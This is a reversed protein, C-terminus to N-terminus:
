AADGRPPLGIVLKPKRPGRGGRTRGENITISQEIGEVGIGELMKAWASMIDALMGAAQRPDDLLEIRISGYFEQSM